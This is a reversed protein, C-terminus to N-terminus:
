ICTHVYVRVNSNGSSASVHITRMYTHITRMYTHITRMYTHTQICMCVHVDSNGTCTNVHIAAYFPTLITRQSMYTYAHGYMCVHIYVCMCMHMVVEQAHISMYPHM